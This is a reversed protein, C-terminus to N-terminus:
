PNKGEKRFVLAQWEGDTLTADLVLREKIHAAIVGDKQRGLLGSLVCIGGPNLVAALAPAMTILPDALINAAILDYPANARAERTDYGNGAAAAINKESGNMAAHRNTVVVAEPDMDIATVKIQPWLKTMAIALIGSGCGMDLANKFNHTKALTELALLCGKTTEHEGSGFATAADINLPILGQPKEGAYHSGYIFFRGVTVPPFNEHVHLLWDKQVVEAVDIDEPGLNINVEKLLRSIEARDPEGFTTLTVAWDDGDTAERNHLFVSVAMGELADSVLQAQEGTLRKGFRLAARWLPAPISDYLDEDVIMGADNKIKRRKDM